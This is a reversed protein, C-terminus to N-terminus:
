RREGSRRLALVGLGLGITLGVVAWLSSEKLVHILDAAAFDPQAHVHLSTKLMMLLAAMPGTLGGGLLGAIGSSLLWGRGDLSRGQSWRTLGTLALALSIILSLLAVATTSRDEYGIWLFWFLGAIAWVGRTIWKLDPPYTGPNM